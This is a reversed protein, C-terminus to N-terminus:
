APQAADQELTAILRARRERIMDAIRAMALGRMFMSLPLFMWLAMGWVMAHPSYLVALGVHAASTMGIIPLVFTVSLGLIINVRADRILRTVIDSGTTPDFTPLNIWVNFAQSRNPWQQM